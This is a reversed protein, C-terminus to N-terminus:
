PSSHKHKEAKTPDIALLQFIIAAAIGMAGLSIAMGEYNFLLLALGGIGTGLAEGLAVAAHNVSMMTGRFRPVQELTLGTTAAFRLGSFLCGLMVLAVSLWSNTVNTYSAAFIGTLLVALVTLLKRGFRRVLRGAVLSGSTYCLATGISLVSVLGTAMLFQQRFFSAGYVLIAMWAAGSLATGALCGNASRSSFVGKFAGFYDRVSMGSQHGSSISPLGKAALLSALLSVPLAYGLFAMRWGGFGAIFGTVPAGVVHSIAMGAVIWGIASPRKEQPLHEGVLTYAMPSSMASGLGSMSYSVLMIGFITAYGCGLASIITFLLGMMLLSRHKFRVSLIGMFLAVVVGLVMGVTRIQGAVGVPVSFTSGIDVLLLGIIVASPSTAFNSLVLSPLVLKGPSRKQELSVSKENM